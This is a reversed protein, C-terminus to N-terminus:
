AMEPGLPVVRAYFFLHLDNEAGHPHRDTLQVAVLPGSDLRRTVAYQSRFNQRRRKDLLSAKQDERQDQIYLM